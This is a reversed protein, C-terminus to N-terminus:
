NGGAEHEQKLAAEIRDLSYGQRLLALVRETGRAEGRAEGIEIGEERGEELWVEQADKLNFETTLM